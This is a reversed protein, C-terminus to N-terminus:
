LALGLLGLGVLGSIAMWKKRKRDYRLKAALGQLGEPGQYYPTFPQPTTQYVGQPWQVNPNIKPNVAPDLSFQWAPILGLNTRALM